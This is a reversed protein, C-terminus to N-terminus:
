KDNKFGHKRAWEETWGYIKVHHVVDGEKECGTTESLEDGAWADTHLHDHDCLGVDVKQKLRELQAILIALGESDAHVALGGKGDSILSLTYKPKPM